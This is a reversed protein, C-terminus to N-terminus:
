SNNNQYEEIARVLGNWPLLACHKRNQQKYVESYALASELEPYIHGTEIMDNFEKNLELIDNINKNLILKLMVSTSSTSIACAEGEFYVDKIINDKILLYIDINDICSENNSNVKIYKEKDKPVEKHYPYMYNDMITARM